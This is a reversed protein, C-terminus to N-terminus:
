SSIASNKDHFVSLILALGFLFWPNDHWVDIGFISFVFIFLVLKEITVGTSKNIIKFIRYLLIGGFLVGFEALITPVSAYPKNASSSLAWINDSALALVSGLYEDHFYSMHLGPLSPVSQAGVTALHESAWLAATGSFQGLSTGFLLTLPDSKFMDIVVFYAYIKPAM